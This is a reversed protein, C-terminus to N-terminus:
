AMTDPASATDTETDRNETAPISAARKKMQRLVFKALRPALYWCVPLAVLLSGAMVRGSDLGVTKLLYAFCSVVALCFGISLFHILEAHKASM